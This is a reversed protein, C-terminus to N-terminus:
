DDLLYLDTCFGTENAFYDANVKVCLHEKVVASKKYRTKRRRHLHKIASTRIGMEM